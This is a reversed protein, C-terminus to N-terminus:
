RGLVTLLEGRRITLSLDNLVTRTGFRVSLRDIQVGAAGHAGTADTLGSADPLARAMEASALSATNVPNM